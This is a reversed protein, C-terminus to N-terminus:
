SCEMDLRIQPVRELISHMHHMGEQIRDVQRQGFSNYEMLQLISRELHLCCIRGETNAQNM